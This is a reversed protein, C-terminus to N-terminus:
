PPKLSPKLPCIPYKLSGQRSLRELCIIRVNSQVM